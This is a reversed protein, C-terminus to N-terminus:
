HVYPPGGGSASKGGDVVKYKRRLRRLKRRYYADRLRLFTKDGRLFLYGFLMGGLHAADSIGPRGGGVFYFMEVAGMGLMLWKIRIPIIFFLLVQRDPYLVAYVLMVSFVIGSCGITPVEAARDALAVCLGAGIGSVALFTAFRRSGYARELEPAFMYISLLNFVIHGLSRTDHLFNFTVMQWAWGRTWVLLPTLGFIRVMEEPSFVELVFAAVCAIVFGKVVPTWGAGFRIVPRGPTQPYVM